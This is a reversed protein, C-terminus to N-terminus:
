RTFTFIETNTEDFYPKGNNLDVFPKLKEMNKLDKNIQYIHYFYDFYDKDYGNYHMTLLHTTLDNRETNWVHTDIQTM